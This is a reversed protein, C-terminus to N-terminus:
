LNILINTTEYLQHPIDYKTISTDVSVCINFGFRYHQKWNIAMRYKKRFERACSVKFDFKMGMFDTLELGNWKAFHANYIFKVRWQSLDPRIYRWARESWKLFTREEMSILIWERSNPFYWNRTCFFPCNECYRANRQIVLNCAIFRFQLDNLKKGHLLPTISRISLFRFMRLKTRRLISEM